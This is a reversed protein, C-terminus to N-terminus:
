AGYELAHCTGGVPQMPPQVVSFAGHLREPMTQSFTLMQGLIRANAGINLTTLWDLCAHSDMQTVEHKGEALQPVVQFHVDAQSRCRAVGDGGADDSGTPAPAAPQSRSHRGLAWGVATVAAAAAVAPAAM